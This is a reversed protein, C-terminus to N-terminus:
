STRNTRSLRTRHVDYGLTHRQSSYLRDASRGHNQFASGPCTATKPSQSRLTPAAASWLRRSERKLAQADSAGGDGRLVPNVRPDHFFTARFPAYTAVDPTSAHLRRLELSVYVGSGNCSSSSTSFSPLANVARPSAQPSSASALSRARSPPPADHSVALAM